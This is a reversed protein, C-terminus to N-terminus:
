NLDGRDRGFKLWYDIKSPDNAPDEKKMQEQEAAYIEVVYSLLDDLEEEDEAAVFSMLSMTAEDEGDENTEISDADVFGVAIAAIFESELGYKVVIDKISLIADQIEIFCDQKKKDM